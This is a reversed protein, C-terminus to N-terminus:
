LLKYGILAPILIYLISDRILYYFFILAFIKWGHKKLTAKLGITKIDITVEKFIKKLKQFLFIIKSGIVKLLHSLGTDSELKMVANKTHALSMVPKLIKALAQAIITSKM